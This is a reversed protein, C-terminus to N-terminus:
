QCVRAQLRLTDVFFDTSYFLGLNSRLRVTWTQGAYGTATFPQDFMVWKSSADANSLDLIVNDTLGDMSVLELTFHDFPTTTPEETTILHFGQLRLATAGAPIMVDQELTEESNDVGGLWALRTGGEPQV